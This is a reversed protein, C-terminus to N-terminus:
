PIIKFKLHIVGTVRRNFNGGGGETFNEWLAFECSDIASVENLFTTRRVIESHKKKKKKNKEKKGHKDKIKLYKEVDKLPDM